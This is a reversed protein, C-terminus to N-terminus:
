EASVTIWWLNFVAPLSESKGNMSGPRGRASSIIDSLTQLLSNNNPYKLVNELKVTGDSGISTVVSLSDEDPIEPVSEMYDKWYLDNIAPYHRTGKLHQEIPIGGLEQYIASRIQESHETTLFEDSAPPVYGPPYFPDISGTIVWFCFAAMMTGLAKTWYFQIGTTRIRSWRFAAADKFRQHWKLQAEKKLRAQVLRYLYDPVPVTEVSKLRKQLTALRELEDRCDTCEKVHRSIKVSTDSDLVGDFYESLRKKANKCLM